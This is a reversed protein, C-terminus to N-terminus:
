EIILVRNSIPQDDFTSVEDAGPESDTEIGAYACNNSKYELALILVYLMIVSETTNMITARDYASTM